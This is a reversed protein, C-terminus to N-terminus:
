KTEWTNSEVTWSSTETAWTLVEIIWTSNSTVWTSSEIVWSQSNILQQLQEYEEQTLTQSSTNQGWFIILLWTGLIWIIIWFLALFAMIQTM